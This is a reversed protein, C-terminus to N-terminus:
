THNNNVQIKTLSRYVSYMIELLITLIVKHKGTSDKFGVGLDILMKAQLNGFKYVLFTYTAYHSNYNANTSLYLAFLYYALFLMIYIHPINFYGRFSILDLFTKSGSGLLFFISPLTWFTFFPELQPWILFLLHPQVKVCDIM